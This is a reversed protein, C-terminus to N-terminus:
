KKQLQATFWEVALAHAAPTVKHATDKQPVFQLNNEANKGRYNARAREICQLLGPMPTRADSDGNIVLAPRPAILALMMDGDFRGDIGPAVRAYFKKIFDANVPVGSEKAATDVANQITGIRSQWSDNNVAWGFSQIAICPAVAAIRPDVAAAMYLEIGGKSIGIAGIRKADVEPRTELYDILRIVDWATDFFFPYEKGPERWARLIAAQYAENGDKATGKREGHYRGDIAIAAFGAKAYNILHEKMGEKTGGTGHMVIVVPLKGTANAPQYWLGPVREGAEANFAFSSQKIGDTVGLDKTTAAFDVRPASILKLFAARTTTEVDKAILIQNGTYGKAPTFIGPTGDAGRQNDAALMPSPFGLALAALALGAKVPTPHMGRSKTFLTRSALAIHLVLAPTPVQSRGVCTPGNLLQVTVCKRRRNPLFTM